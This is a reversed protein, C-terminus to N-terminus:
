TPSRTLRDRSGSESVPDRPYDAEGDGPVPTQQELRDAEDIPHAIPDPIMPAPEAENLSTPEVPARQGLRDAEPVQDDPDTRYDAV